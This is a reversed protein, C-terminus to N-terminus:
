PRNTAQNEPAHSGATSCRHRLQRWLGPLQRYTRRGLSYVLLWLAAIALHPWQTALNAM